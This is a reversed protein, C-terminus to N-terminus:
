SNAHVAILLSICTLFFYLMVAYFFDAIVFDSILFKKERDKGWGQKKILNM